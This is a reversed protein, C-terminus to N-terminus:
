GRDWGRVGRGRAVDLTSALFALQSTAFGALVGLGTGRVLSIAGVGALGALGMGVLVALYLLYGQAALVLADLVAAVGAAPALWRLLKHFLLTLAHGPRGARALEVIHGPIASMAQTAMRRRAKFVSGVSPPGDDVVVAGPVFTVDYGQAAVLSPLSIDADSTAPIPRLLSRRVMLATGSAKALVGLRSEADMLRYEFGFYSAEARANAGDRRPAFVGGALGVRSSRLEAALAEIAGPGYEAGASTTAIAEGTSAAILANDTAAKGQRAYEIVRLRPDAIGHLVQATRDTCGDLGVVVEPPPGSYRQDLCSRVCREITAEENHAAVLISVTPWPLDRAPRPRPALRALLLIGAPYGLYVAPWVLLLLWFLPGLVTELTM